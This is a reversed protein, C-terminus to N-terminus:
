VEEPISRQTTTRAARRETEMAVAASGGGGGGFTVDPPAGRNRSLRAASPAAIHQRTGLATRGHEAGDVLGDLVPVQLDPPGTASGRSSGNARVM